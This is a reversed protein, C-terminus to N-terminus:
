DEPMKSKEVQGLRDWVSRLKRTVLNRLKSTIGNDEEEIDEPNAQTRGKRLNGVLRENSEQWAKKENLLSPLHILHDRKM